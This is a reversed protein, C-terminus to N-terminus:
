KADRHQKLETIRQWDRFASLRQRRDSETVLALLEELGVETAYCRGHALRYSSSRLDELFPQWLPGRGGLLVAPGGPDVESGCYECSTAVV